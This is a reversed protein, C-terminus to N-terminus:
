GPLPVFGMIYLYLSYVMKCWKSKMLLCPSKLALHTQHCFFISSFKLQTQSREEPKHTRIVMVSFCLGAFTGTTISRHEAPNVTTNNKKQELSVCSILSMKLHSAFVHSLLYCLIICLLSVYWIIFQQWLQSGSFAGFRCM